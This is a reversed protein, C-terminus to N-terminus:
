RRSNRPMSVTTGRHHRRRVTNGYFHGPRYPRNLIDQSRIQARYANRAAVSDAVNTAHTDQSSAVWFVVTLSLALMWMKM